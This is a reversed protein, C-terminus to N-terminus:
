CIAKWIDQLEQSTIGDTVTPFPAVLAYIWQSSSPLDQDDVTLTVDAEARNETLVYGDPLM